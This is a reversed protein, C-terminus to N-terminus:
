NEYDSVEKLKDKSIIMIKTKYDYSIILTKVNPFMLEKGSTLMCTLVEAAGYDQVDTITGLEANDEFLVKSGKLDEFLIKGEVLNRDIYLFKGIYTKAEELGIKELKVVVGDTNKFIREVNFINDKEDYMQKIASVDFGKDFETIVKMQGLYGHLKVVKGLSVKEM